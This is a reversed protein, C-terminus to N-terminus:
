EETSITGTDRFVTRGGVGLGRSRTVMTLRGCLQPTIARTALHKSYCRQKPELVRGAM